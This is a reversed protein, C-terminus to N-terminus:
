FWSTIPLPYANQTMCHLSLYYKMVRKLKRKKRERKRTFVRTKNSPPTKKGGERNKLVMLPGPQM